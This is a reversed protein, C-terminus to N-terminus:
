RFVGHCLCSLREQNEADGQRQHLRQESTTVALFLRGGGRHLNWEHSDRRLIHVDRQINDALGDAGSIHGDTRPDVAKEVANMELFAGEDVLTRQEVGDVRLRELGLEGM